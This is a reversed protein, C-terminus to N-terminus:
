LTSEVFKGVYFKEGYDIELQDIKISIEKGQCICSFLGNNPTGPQIKLSNSDDQSILANESEQYQPPLRRLLRVFPDAHDGWNEELPRTGNWFTYIERLLVKFLKSINESAIWPRGDQRIITIGKDDCIIRFTKCDSNFTASVVGSIFRLLHGQTAFPNISAPIAIDKARFSELGYIDAATPLLAAIVDGDIPALAEDPKFPQFLRQKVANLAAVPAELLTSYTDDYDIFALMTVALQHFPNAKDNKANCLISLEYALAEKSSALFIEKGRITALIRALVWQADAIRGESKYHGPQHSIRTRSGDPNEIVHNQAFYQAIRGQLAFIAEMPEYLIARIEQVEAQTKGISDSLVQLPTTLQRLMQDSKQLRTSQEEVTNLLKGTLVHLTQYKIEYQIGRLDAVIKQLFDQNGCPKERNEALECVGCELDITLFVGYANRLSGPNFYAARQDSVGLCLVICGKSQEGKRGSYEEQKMAVYPKIGQNFLIEHSSCGTPSNVAEKGDAPPLVFIASAEDHKYFAPFGLFTEIENSMKEANPNNVFGRESEARWGHNNWTGPPERGDWGFHYYENPCCVIDDASKTTPTNSTIQRTDKVAAEVFDASM